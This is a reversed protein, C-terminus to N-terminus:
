NFKTALEKLTRVIITREQSMDTSSYLIQVFEQLEQCVKNLSTLVPEEPLQGLQYNKKIECYKTYQPLIDNLEKVVEESIHDMDDKGDRNEPNKYKEQVIYLSALKLCNEFTTAGNELEEITNSIQEMDLMSTDEFM